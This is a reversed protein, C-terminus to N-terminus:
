LCVFLCKSHGSNKFLYFLCILFVPILFFSFFNSYSFSIECIFFNLPLFFFLFQPFIILLRYYSHERGPEHDKGEWCIGFSASPFVDCRTKNMLCIKSSGSHVLYQQLCNPIKLLLKRQPDRHKKKHLSCTRKLPVNIKDADRKTLQKTHWGFGFAFLWHFAFSYFWTCLFRIFIQM